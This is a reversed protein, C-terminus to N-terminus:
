DNDLMYQVTDKIEDDSCDACTGRPPMANFGEIAHALLTDMGKENLRTTMEGDGFKPSGLIGSAHCAACSRNYIDAASRGAAAAPAAASATGCTDDGQVCVQGHPKIREIMADRDVAAYVSTALVVSLGLTCLASAAKAAFTNM